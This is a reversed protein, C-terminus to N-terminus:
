LTSKLLGELGGNKAIKCPLTQEQGATVQEIGVLRRRLNGEFETIGRRLVEIVGKFSM